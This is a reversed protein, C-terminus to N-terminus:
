VWPTQWEGSINDILLYSNASLQPPAPLPAAMLTVSHLLGIVLAVGPLLLSPLVSSIKVNLKALYM